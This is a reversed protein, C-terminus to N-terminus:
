NFDRFSPLSTIPVM